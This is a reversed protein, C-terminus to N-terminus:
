ISIEHIEDDVFLAGGLVFLTENYACQTLVLRSTSPSGRPADLSVIKRRCMEAPLFERGNFKEEDAIWFTGSFYRELDKAAFDRQNNSGQKILGWQNYLFYLPHCSYKRDFLTDTIIRPKSEGFSALLNGQSLLREVNRGVVLETIFKDLM